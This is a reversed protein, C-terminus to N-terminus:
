DGQIAGGETTSLGSGGDARGDQEICLPKSAKYHKFTSLMATIPALYFGYRHYLECSVTTLAHGVFPDAELDATLLDQRAASIPLLHSVATTYIQLVASGLTRRMSAGLRAEYRAYLKGIEENPLSDIEEASLQRGIYQKSM